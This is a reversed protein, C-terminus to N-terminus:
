LDRFGALRIGATEIASRVRADTLAELEIQRARKLRTRAALLEETCFGPHCMLETVGDPLARVLQVLNEGALVGTLQFGAFHDTVRCNYRQLVRHFYPRAVAMGRSILRISAPPSVPLPLDFPRRVWGIGYQASLRGVADLVPPFLHTHKHTDLHTPEIGTEVIRRIQLDFERYPDLLGAAVAALSQGVSAPLARGPRSLSEGGTLVLHCGIDLGPTRRALEVAHEFAGGNAMLTTSTLIGATHARVIGENVDRTFGFDDANVALVKM